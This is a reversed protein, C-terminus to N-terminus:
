IYTTCRKSCKRISPGSYVEMLPDTDSFSNMRDNLVETKENEYNKLVETQKESLYKKLDEPFFKRFDPDEFEMLEIQEVEATNTKYYKFYDEWTYESKYEEVHNDGTQANTYISNDKM